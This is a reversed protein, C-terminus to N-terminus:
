KKDYKLAIELQKIAADVAEIAEVRHGGFDHAATKMEKKAERLERLARRIHPHRENKEAAPKQGAQVTDTAMLGLGGVLLGSMLVTVGVYKSIRNM